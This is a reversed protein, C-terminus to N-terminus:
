FSRGHQPCPRLNQVTFMLKRAENVSASRCTKSYMLVTLREVRQMHLSDLTLSTPDQTIAIFTDTVEPFTAWANWATKKGIEFMASTVNCGTFSHFFLLAKCRQPGLQQSIHHIPIERFTKGPGLGIWLESLKLQHFHHIALVIVDTDVTRLYAKTHDQEAAHYMTADNM